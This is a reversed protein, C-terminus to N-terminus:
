RRGELVELCRPCVEPFKHEKGTLKGYTWCRQCKEGPAKVLNVALGEFEASEIGRSLKDVLRVSSVLFLRALDEEGASVSNFQELFAKLKPPAQLQIEADLPHGVGSNKDKQAQDLVKFAENRVKFFKDMQELLKEDLWENREEPFDLLFVSSKREGRVPMVAYAEEATFSLVPAMLRVMADLACFLASQSSKRPRGSKSECYLRDRVIDIYIASLDVACFNNLLHYVLHYECHEYAQKVRRKFEETRALLWRDILFMKERAIMEKEPDFDHLNGVLYKITNRVKRYTKVISDLIDYDVRVDNRFNEAAVWMRIIEAGYKAVLEDIAIYNGASKALKKGEGDVVYGHTLVTKYPPKQRTGVACLLTSHFWGRHQDSGELYLDVPLGLEPDPECVAAYSVGSDFWVDLIDDEKIFDGGQCKPCKFGSPLLEKESREFWVDCGYKEFLGAVREVLEADLVVEGCHKCHFAIIPVGWVRQRSICWDPRTEIMKYIREQGWDPDWRVARIAELAKQRLGNKEMSIFWQPTSRFIIPDKSRWCHPYSHTIPEEKLLAGAEKLKQNVNRNADFVFQGAFFEVDKTFRGEDDVPSYVELGYEMGSEYDEQGHGPATHVVGTGADLTVYDALIAVSDREYLPHKFVLREIEKGKFKDIVEFKIGLHAMVLSALGEALIYICDRARAAVYDFDPKLAVALNAPITWPTTTWVMIYVPAKEELQLFRSYAAADKGKDKQWRFRVYISPSTKEKYEVEAEALATKCTSCWYVPKKGLYVSGKSVFKGFERAIVAEYKYDMTIYPKDWQGLVMLRKFENRQIDLFKAAYERCLKRFDLASVESKKKGLEVEVQREIPLGHCDWGPVYPTYFGAMARSKVVIDKLIKNLGTGLHIHGNAYPPGDHLVYKPKGRRAELMKEYVKGSEWKQLLEPERKALNAKMEFNSAPLNLTNKYDM